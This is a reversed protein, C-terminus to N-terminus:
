RDRDERILEASDSFTRGEFRSWLQELKELPERQERDERLLEASDTHERGALPARMEQAFARVEEIESRTEKEDPM